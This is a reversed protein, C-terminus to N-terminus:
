DLAERGPYPLEIRASIVSLVRIGLRRSSRRTGRVRRLSGGRTRPLTTASGRDLSVRLTSQRDVSASSDRWGGTAPVLWLRGRVLNFTVIWGEPGTDALETALLASTRRTERCRA